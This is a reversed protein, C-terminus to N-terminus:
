SGRTRGGEGVRREESGRPRGLGPEPPHLIRGRGQATIQADFEISDGRRYMSGWVALGSGSALSLARVAAAEHGAQRPRNASGTTGGLVMTGPDAIEVKGTLALGRTIWDAALNGLPDLTSDDTRNAFPVVLVRSRFLTTYPFLTSRPPRRIM